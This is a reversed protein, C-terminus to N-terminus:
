WVAKEKWIWTHIRDFINYHYHIAGNIDKITKM